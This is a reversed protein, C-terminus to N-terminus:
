EIDIHMSWKRNGLYRLKGSEEWEKQRRKVIKTIALQEERSRPKGGIPKVKKSVMDTNQNKSKAIEKEIEYRRKQHEEKMKNYDYYM